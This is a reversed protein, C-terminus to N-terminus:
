KGPVIELTLHQKAPFIANSTSPSLSFIATKARKCQPIKAFATKALAEVRVMRM